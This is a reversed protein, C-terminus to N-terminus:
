KIKIEKSKSNRIHDFQNVDGLNAATDRWSLIILTVIRPLCQCYFKSGEANNSCVKIIASSHRIFKYIDCNLDLINQVCTQRCSWSRRDRNSSGIPIFYLKSVTTRVQNSSPLIDSFIISIKLNGVHPLWHEIHGHCNCGRDAFRGGYIPFSEDM